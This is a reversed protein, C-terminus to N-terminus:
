VESGMVVRVHCIYSMLVLLWKHKTWAFFFSLHAQLNSPRCLRAAASAPRAAVCQRAVLLPCALWPRSLLLLLVSVCVVRRSQMIGQMDHSISLRQGLVIVLLPRPVSVVCAALLLWAAPLLSGAAPAGRM